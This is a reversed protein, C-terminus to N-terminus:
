GPCVPQIYHKDWRKRQGRIVMFSVIAKLEYLTLCDKALSAPFQVWNTLIAHPRRFGEKYDESCDEITWMREGPIHEELMPDGKRPQTRNIMLDAEYIHITYGINSMGGGDVDM